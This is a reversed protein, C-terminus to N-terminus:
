VTYFTLHLFGIMSTLYYEACVAALFGCIKKLEYKELNIYEFTYNKTIKM